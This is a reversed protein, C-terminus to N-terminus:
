KWNDDHVLDYPYYPVDKWESDDLGLVKVMTGSEFDLIDHFWRIGLYLPYELSYCKEAQSLTRWLWCRPFFIKGVGQSASHGGTHWKEAASPFYCEASVKAQQSLKLFLPELELHWIECPLFTHQNFAHTAKRWGHRPVDGPLAPRSFWEIIVEMKLGVTDQLTTLYLYSKRNHVKM